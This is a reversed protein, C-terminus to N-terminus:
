TRPNLFVLTIFSSGLKSFGISEVKEQFEGPSPITDDKSIVHWVRRLKRIRLVEKAIHHNEDHLKELNLIEADLTRVVEKPEYEELSTPKGYIDFLSNILIKIDMAKKLKHNVYFSVVALIFAVLIQM